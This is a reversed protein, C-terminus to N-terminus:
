LGTTFVLEAVVSNVAFVLEAAVSIVEALNM